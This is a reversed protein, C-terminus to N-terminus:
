SPYVLAKHGDHARLVGVLPLSRGDFYVQRSTGCLLHFGPTFIPFESNITWSTVCPLQMEHLSSSPSTLLHCCSILRWPDVYFFYVATRLGDFANARCYGGEDTERFPCLLRTLVPGSWSRKQIPSSQDSVPILKGLLEAAKHLFCEQGLRHIAVEGVAPSAAVDHTHVGQTHTVIRCSGLRCLGRQGRRAISFRLAQEDLCSLSARGAVFETDDDFM